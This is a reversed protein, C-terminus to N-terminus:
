DSWSHDDSRWHAPQDPSWHGPVVAPPWGPAAIASDHPSSVIQRNRNDDNPPRAKQCRNGRWHCAEGSSPTKGDAGADPAPDISDSRLWHPNGINSVQSPKIPTM